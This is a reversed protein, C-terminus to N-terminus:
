RDRRPQFSFRVRVPTENEGEGQVKAYLGYRACLDVLNFVDAVLAEPKAVFNVEFRQDGLEEKRYELAEKLVLPGNFSVGAIQAKLGAEARLAREGIYNRIRSRRLGTGLLDYRYRAEPDNVTVELVVPPDTVTAVQVSSAGKTPMDTEANSSFQAIMIYGFLLIFLVDILRVIAPGGPGNSDM